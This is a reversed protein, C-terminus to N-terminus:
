DILLKFYFTTGHLTGDRNSRAWNPITGAQTWGCRQYFANSIDTQDTDLHLLTRGRGRAAQEVADMLQRGVGRGQHEPHVLVKGVEARHLGNERQALELQASGVVHGDDTAIVLVNDPRIAALWYARAMMPEPTDMWGISAGSLVIRILIDALETVQKETLSSVETIEVM